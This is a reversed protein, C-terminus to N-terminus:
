TLLYPLRSPQPGHTKIYSVSCCSKMLAFSRGNPLRPMPMFFNISCIQIKTLQELKKQFSELMTQFCRFYIGKLYVQLGEQFNEVFNSLANIRWLSDALTQKRSFRDGCSINDWFHKQIKFSRLAPIQLKPM